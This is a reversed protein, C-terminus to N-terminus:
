NGAKDRTIGDFYQKDTTKLLTLEMTELDLAHINANSHFTVILLRNNEKDFCLGNPSSLSGQLNIQQFQNPNGANMRYIFGGATESLYIYGKDDAAIDNLFINPTSVITTGLLQRSSLSIYHVRYVDTVFLTDGVIYMGKPDFLNDSLLNELTGDSKRIIISGDFVGQVGVNSVYYCNRVADYVVSEPQSYSAAYASLSAALFLLLIILNKMKM